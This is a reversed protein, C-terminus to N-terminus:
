GASRSSKRCDMMSTIGLADTCFRSPSKSHFCCCVAHCFLCCLFCHRLLLRSCVRYDSEGSERLGFSSVQGKGGARLFSGGGDTQFSAGAGPQSEAPTQPVPESFGLRESAGVSRMSPMREAMEVMEPMEEIVLGAKKLKQLSVLQSSKGGPFVGRAGRGQVSPNSKGFATAPKLLGAGRASSQGYM